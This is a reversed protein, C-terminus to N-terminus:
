YRRALVILIVTVGACDTVAARALSVLLIDSVRNGVHVYPRLIDFHFAPTLLRRSRAWKEGSAILLGEGLWGIAFRYMLPKPEAVTFGHIYLDCACLRVCACVSVCVCVCVYVCVRVCARVCVCVCM